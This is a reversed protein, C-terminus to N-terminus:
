KLASPIWMKIPHFIKSHGSIFRFFSTKLRAFTSELNVLNVLNVLTNRRLHGDRGDRPWTSYAIGCVYLSPEINMWTLTNKNKTKRTFYVPNKETYNCNDHGKESIRINKCRKCMSNKSCSCLARSRCRLLESTAEAKSVIKPHKWISFGFKSRLIKIKPNKISRLIQFCTKDCIEYQFGEQWPNGM